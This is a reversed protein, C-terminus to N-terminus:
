PQALARHRRTRHDIQPFATRPGRYARAAQRTVDTVGVPKYDVMQRANPKLKDAPCEGALAASATVLSIAITSAAGLAQWIKRSTAIRNFM